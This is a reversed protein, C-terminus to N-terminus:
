NGREDQFVPMASLQEGSAVVSGRLTVNYKKSSEQAIFIFSKKEKIIKITVPEIIYFENKDNFLSKIKKFRYKRPYFKLRYM